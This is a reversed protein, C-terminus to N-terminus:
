LKVARVEQAYTTNMEMDWDPIPELQEGVLILFKKCVEEHIQYIEEATARSHGLGMDVIWDDVDKAEFHWHSEQLALQFLILSPEFMFDDFEDCVPITVQFGPASIELNKFFIASFREPTTVEKLEIRKEDLVSKFEKAYKKYDTM